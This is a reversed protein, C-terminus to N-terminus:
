RRGGSGARSVGASRSKKRSNRRKTSVAPYEKRVSSSTVDSSLSKKLLDCHPLHSFPCDSGGRRATRFSIPLSAASSISALEKISSHLQAVNWFLTIKRCTAPPKPALTRPDSCLVREERQPMQPEHSALGVRPQHEGGPARPPAASRVRMASRYVAKAAACLERTRCAAFEHQEPINGYLGKRGVIM